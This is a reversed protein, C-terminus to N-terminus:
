YKILNQRLMYTTPFSIRKPMTFSLVDKVNTEEWVDCNLQFKEERYVKRVINWNVVRMKAVM